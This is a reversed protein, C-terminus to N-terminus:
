IFEKGLANQPTFFRQNRMYNVKFEFYYFKFIPTM